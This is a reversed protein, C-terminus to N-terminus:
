RLYEQPWRKILSDEEERSLTRRSLLYLREEEEGEEEGEEDKAERGDQEEGAFGVAVDPETM